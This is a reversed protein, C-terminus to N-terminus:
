GGSAIYEDYMEPMTKWQVKGSDVYPKIAQLWKEMLPIDPATGLSYAAYYTNMRGPESNAIADEIEAISANVDNEDFDCKGYGASNKEDYACILVGSSPILVMRGSDSNELWNVGSEARHPTLRGELEPPYPQHCAAPTRCDRYAAPRANEPMSMLCYAVQGTTFKFGADVAAGVWDLHSCIGSVHRTNVGLSKLVSQKDKLNQVFQAYTLGETRSGGEDAHLGIGHGRREMELLTSDNWKVAGNNYEGNSELTLKAGYKEFLSALGEVEENHRDLVKKSVTDNWGELHVMYGIYLVKTKNESMKTANEKPKSTMSGNKKLASSTNSDNSVIVATAVSPEGCDQPCLGPRAQELPQCIGDGCNGFGLNSTPTPNGNARPLQPTVPSSPLASAAPASQNESQSICGFILMGFILSLLVIAFSRSM